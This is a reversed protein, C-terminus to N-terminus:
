DRAPQDESAFEFIWGLLYANRSTKIAKPGSVVKMPSCIEETSVGNVKIEQKNFLSITQSLRGKKGFVAGPSM